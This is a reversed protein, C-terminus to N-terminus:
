VNNSRAEFCSLKRNSFKFLNIILKGQYSIKLSLDKNRCLIDKILIEWLLLEMPFDPIYGNLTTSRFIDSFDVQTLEKQLTSPHLIRAVTM